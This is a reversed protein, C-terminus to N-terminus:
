ERGVECERLAAVLGSIKDLTEQYEMEPDSDAVIGGGAHFYAKSGAVVFSRIVINLDMNGRFDIFGAAGSYIGRRHPELEEIIEMARVKPAGTISGGPFTARLLDVVDRGEDLEAEVTSVMQFVNPHEEIEWLGTTKVSGYRAVRGLDSREMDVIMVNEARDKASSALEAALRADEEPGAGRPRTGKIPRTVVRRTAPDYSLFDEPSASVLTLPGLEMFCSKPAPNVRRLAEYLSLPSCALEAEFRQSLNVQYVDGAAIYDKVRKIAEIYGAKTFNSRIGGLSHASVVPSGIAVGSAEPVGVALDRWFELAGRDGSWSVATCTKAERDICLASDYIGLCYDPTPADDQAISPVREIMRGLDYSFYGVAGGAFPVSVEETEQRFEALMDRLAEFPDGQRVSINGGAQAATASEKSTLVLEPGAGIVARGRGVDELVFRGPLGDLRELLAPVSPACDFEVYRM